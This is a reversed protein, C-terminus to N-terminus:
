KGLTTLIEKVADVVTGQDQEDVNNHFPLAVTRDAVAETVPFDGETAGLRKRYFPQLHIPVFYNSAGIGRDRLGQILADRQQRTFRDALRIVYVFWSMTGDTYPAPTIVGPVDAFLRNYREAVAARKEIFEGLRALQSIGLACQIDSLRYNYGLREHALWGAGDGRGQNRLSRALRALEEDDTVLMGGEGTTIQKNPYFAFSGCDGFSGAARGKYTSGLAECSDEIVKLNHRAAIGEIVDLRAPRGFVDVPLIAKTRPTVAAEIKSVDINYDQADIDVFVPSAGEFLICNSSAIFSFATTIVEDGPGIGLGRVACHLSSTGSNVAVAHKRGVVAAIKEEFEPLKPGLSLDPTQLVAVVADIDAQSIDHASLTIRM